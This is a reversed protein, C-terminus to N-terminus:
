KKMRADANLARQLQPISSKFLRRGNAHQVQYKEKDRIDEDNQNLPFMDRTQENLLCNKAFKLCLSNRRESLSELGLYELAHNYDQYSDKLIIKCAVKQVREIDEKEEETISYSWVQCSQELVSRIYLIYINVMEADGINFPYLKHLMIMRKYSKKVIMETNSRWTLDATIITGLLKCEPLIDLLQDKIYLRTSFQFNKTFNFIMSNSKKSNLKMLNNDTWQVIGNLYEQSKFNESPLFKQDVGIDSAVHQKFNYSSLGMLILNLKELISLDDVFKFRMDAPVNNANDNSNSKYEILGLSCGQPGGGPLDRTSSTTGHWKVVMKREQFYSILLPILTPRVGNKIFSKIGLLPDQRDFAKSWDIFQAIVANKELDNNSDLITLIKNVFKVLYHQISLGKVNGYQSPDMNPAMDQIIPESLLAEFIKSFNKTGSIKRLDDTTEPPYVKPVPTVYEYKWLLPWVGSLTSTNLINSLPFSLEVAYEFIVRWPVDGPVTSAKKKMSKIKEYIQYPEFLPHPASEDTKPIEVDDSNLPQYLNSISSFQDAIKEAQVKSSDGQLQQVFVKCM